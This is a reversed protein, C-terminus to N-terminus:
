SNLGTPNSGVSWVLPRPLIPRYCQYLGTRSKLDVRARQIASTEAPPAARARALYAAVPGTVEIGPLEEPSALRAGIIERNDLQLKPPRDLRLEFFHVGDWIGTAEGAPLLRSAVLGTEEALERRAAADPTEGRKVGGGPFNWEVQYSSRVLLLARDVYVAVLAGEPRAGRLRWGVRAVPFGLRFALRWATDLPRPGSM